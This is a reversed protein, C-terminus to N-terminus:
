SALCFPGDSASSLPLKVVCSGVKRRIFPDLDNSGYAPKLDAELRAEFYKNARLNGTKEMFEVQEPLWTDLTCSRVQPM